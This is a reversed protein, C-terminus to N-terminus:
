RIAQLKSLDVFTTWGKQSKFLEALGGHGLLWGQEIRKLRDAEAEAEAKMDHRALTDLILAGSSWMIHRFLGATHKGKWVFDVQQELEKSIMLLHKVLRHMEEKPLEQVYNTLDGEINEVRHAFSNRVFAMASIARAEDKQLVGLDQALSLKGARGDLGLRECHGVVAENGLKAAIVRGLAAEILV